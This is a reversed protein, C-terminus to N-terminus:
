SGDAEDWRVLRAGVAELAARAEPSALAVLESDRGVTFSTHRALEADMYGPHVMLETFGNPLRKLERLLAPTRFGTGLAIGRFHRAVRLGARHARAGFLLGLASIALLRAADRPAPRQYALSGLGEAPARVAPVAYRRALRLVIPTLRPHVHVHHHSDFHGIRGGLELAREVQASLERELEAARIRGTTLRRLLDGLVWFRGDRRVLSPVEEPRSLPRGATLNLHMGLGLDPAERWLGVAEAAAPLNAMLSTSTVLGRRHAELVGRNVGGSLGFDDANVLLRRANGRPPDSPISEGM